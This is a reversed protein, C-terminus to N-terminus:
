QRAAAARAARTEAADRMARAKVELSDAEDNRGVRRLVTAYKETAVAATVSEASAEQAKQSETLLRVTQVGQNVMAGVGPNFASAYGGFAYGYAPIASGYTRQMDGLLRVRLELEEAKKLNEASHAERIALARGYLNAAKDLLRLDTSVEALQELTAALDSHGAGLAKEQVAVAQELLPKADAPRSLAREIEALLVLNQTLAEPRTGPLSERVALAWRALPEAEAYRKQLYLVRAFDANSRAMLTREKAEYPRLLAIAKRFAQAARDLNGRDLALWGTNNYYQWDHLASLPIEQPDQAGAPGAALTVFGTLLGLVVRRLTKSM